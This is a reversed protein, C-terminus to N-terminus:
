PTFRNLYAVLDALQQRSISSEDYLMPSRRIATDIAPYSWGIREQHCGTCFSTVVQKGATVNGSLHSPIGFALKGKETVNGRNDFNGTPPTATPAAIPTATPSAVPPAPPFPAGPTETAPPNDRISKCEKRGAKLIARLLPLRKSSPTKKRTANITTTYPTFKVLAGRQKATGPVLGQCFITHTSAKGKVTVTISTSVLQEPLPPSQTIGPLPFGATLLLLLVLLLSKNM